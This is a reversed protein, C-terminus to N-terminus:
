TYVKPKSVIIQISVIIQTGTFSQLASEKSAACGGDGGDQAEKLPFTTYWKQSGM